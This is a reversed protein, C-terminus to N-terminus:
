QGGHEIVSKRQEWLVQKVGHVLYTQLKLKKNKWEFQGTISYQQRYLNLM